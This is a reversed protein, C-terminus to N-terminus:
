NIKDFEIDEEEDTAFAYRDQPARKIASIREITNGQDPDTFVIPDNGRM